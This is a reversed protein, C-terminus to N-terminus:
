RVKIVRDAASPLVKKADPLAPYGRDRARTRSTGARAAAVALDLRSSVGLKRFISSVQNAVTRESTGRLVAIQRNSAGGLLQDMVARESTTVPEWRTAYPQSTELSFSLVFAGPVAPESPELALGRPAPLEDSPPAFKAADANAM